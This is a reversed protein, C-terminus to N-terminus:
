YFVLTLHLVLHQGVGAHLQNRVQAVGQPRGRLERWAVLKHGLPPSWYLTLPTRTNLNSIWLPPSTNTSGAVILSAKM